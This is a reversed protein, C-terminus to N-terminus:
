RLTLDGTHIARFIADYEFSGAHWFLLIMGIFLGVDGIRTM